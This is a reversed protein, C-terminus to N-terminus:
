LGIKFILPFIGRVEYLKKKQIYKRILVSWPLFPSHRPNKLKKARWRHGCHHAFNHAPTVRIENRDDKQWNYYDNFNKMDTNDMNERIKQIPM